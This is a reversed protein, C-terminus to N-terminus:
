HVCLLAIDNGSPPTGQWWTSAGKYTCGYNQGLNTRLEYIGPTSPAKVMRTVTGSAGGAKPTDDDYGCGIRGGPELGYEIQDICDKPCSTDTIAYHFSMPLMQSPAATLVQAGGLSIDTMTVAGQNRTITVTSPPPTPNAGCLWDDQDDCVGDQDEDTCADPPADAVPADPTAADAPRAADLGPAPADQGPPRLRAPQFSCAAVCSMALLSRWM